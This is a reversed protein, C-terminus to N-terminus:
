QDLCLFKFYKSNENRDPWLKTYETLLYPSEQYSLQYIIQRCHLLGWNSGQTSFIRQLFSLSGRGTNMPKRPSKSPLSDAQLTPSVPKIGSDPLVGPSPFSLGSWCQQKPFGRLCLFRFPQLGHTAFRCDCSLLKVAVTSSPCASGCHLYGSSLPHTFLTASSNHPCVLLSFGPQLFPQKDSAKYTRKLEQIGFQFFTKM